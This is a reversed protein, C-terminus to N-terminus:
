FGIFFRSQANFLGTFCYPLPFLVPSRVVYIGRFFVRLVSLDALYNLPWVLPDGPAVRM